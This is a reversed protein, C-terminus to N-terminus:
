KVGIVLLSGARTRCYGIYPALRYAITNLAHNRCWEEPWPIVDIVRFGAQRMLQCVGDLRPVMRAASGYYEEMTVQPPRTRADWNKFKLWLVGGEELLAHAKQLAKLPDEFYYVVENMSIFGFPGGIQGDIDPFKGQLVPMGYKQAIQVAAPDLELGISNIGALQMFHCFGGTRAGIDLGNRGGYRKLIHLTFKAM